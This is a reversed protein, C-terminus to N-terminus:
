FHLQQDYPTPNSIPRLIDREVEIRPRTHTKRSNAIIKEKHSTNMKRLPITIASFPKSTIGDIMLKLYIHYNALNILDAETFEPAFEQALLKADEAGVRFSIITGVNGFIAARIKENL